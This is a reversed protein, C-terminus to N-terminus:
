EVPLTDKNGWENWSPYYLRVKDYGLLRLVFYTHSARIGAQCYTVVTKDRTVGAGELLNKLEEQAKFTNTPSDIANSWELNIAGPIHGARKSLKATGTYEAKSRVDLLAVQANQLEKLIWTADTVIGPKVHANFSGPEVWPVDRSLPWDEGKWRDIGGNLLAVGDHGMIELVWFLQAAYLGGADDYVVVMTDNGIGADRIKEEVLEVNTEGTDAGWSACYEAIKEPEKAGPWLYIKKSVGKVASVIEDMDVYVAGPIHGQLYSERTEQMDVIRLNSDQLHAALWDTEVLIKSNPYQGVMYEMPYSVILAVLILPVYYPM